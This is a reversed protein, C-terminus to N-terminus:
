FLPLPSGHLLKEEVRELGKATVSKLAEQGAPWKAIYLVNYQRIRLEVRSSDNKMIIILKIDKYYKHLFPIFYIMSIGRLEVESIILDVRYRVLSEILSMFDDARLIRYGNPSLAEECYDADSSKKFGLLVTQINNNHYPM